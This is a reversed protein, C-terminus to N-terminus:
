LPLILKPLFDRHCAAKPHSIADTVKLSENAVKKLKSKTNVENENAQGELGSIM